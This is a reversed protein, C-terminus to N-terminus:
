YRLLLKAPAIKISFEKASFIEGDIHAKAETACKVSIENTKFYNVKPLHSHKGAVLFPLRWLRGLVSVKEVHCIDLLGDNVEAKPCVKMGGGFAIGNGVTLMFTSKNIALDKTKISFDYGNYGFIGEAIAKYYSLVSGSQEAKLAAARHAVSGDFGIGVGNHFLNGNCIGLDIPKPQAFLAKQLQENPHQKGPLARSFDNGTGTQICAVNLDFRPLGNIAEHLTGDGGCVWLETFTHDLNKAIIQHALNDKQTKFLVYAINNNELSQLVHPLFRETKGNGAIPNALLFVKRL